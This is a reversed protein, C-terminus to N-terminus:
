HARSVELPKDDAPPPAEPEDAQATLVDELPSRYAYTDIAGVYGASAMAKGYRAPLLVGLEELSRELWRNHTGSLMLDLNARHVDIAREEFPYAEDELAMDYAEAEADSLGAPRESAMLAASFNRYTEAIYFTAASTVEAVEYAVLAEMAALASDMRAQKEALSKEFPLSLTLTAFHEYAPRALVLAAQAALYRTRDTRASGAAADLRVITALEGHYAATDGMGNVLGAIKQRIEVNGELPEAFEDVYLRYAHLAAAEDLAQEYLGGALLLSESRMAGDTAAEAIRMYEHASAAFDEAERYVHALQKTVEGQLEHETHTERFATLVDTAAAWDALAILAVAADYEAAPRISSTPALAKVRLFHEAAAAFSAADRAAAGQQYIAAALNEIIEPKLEDDDALLALVELYAPEAADFAELDFHAHAIVTWARRLLTAEADPHADVLQTGAAIAETFAQMAYLDDTAAGLM